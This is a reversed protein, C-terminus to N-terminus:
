QEAALQVSGAVALMTQVCASLINVSFWGNPWIERQSIKGVIVFFPPMEVSRLDRWVSARRPGVLGVM